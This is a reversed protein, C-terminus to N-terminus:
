VVHARHRSGIEEGGKEDALSRRELEREWTHVVEHPPKFICGITQCSECTFRDKPYKAAVRQRIKAWANDGM